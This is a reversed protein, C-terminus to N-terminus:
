PTPIARLAPARASSTSLVRGSALIESSNPSRRSRARSIRRGRDLSQRHIANPRPEDDEAAAEAAEREQARDTPLAPVHRQDRRAVVEQERGEQRGSRRARDLQARDDLRGPASQALDSEDLSPRRRDVPRRPPKEASSRDAVAGELQGEVLDDDRDAGFDGGEADVADLLVGHGERRDFVRAPDPAPHEFLEGPRADRSRRVSDHLVGQAEHDAAASRGADLDRGLDVVQELVLKPRGEGLQRRPSADQQELGRRTQQEGEIRREGVVGSPVKPALPHLQPSTGRHAAQPGAGDLEFAALRNARVEHDPRGPRAGRSEDPVQVDLEVVV